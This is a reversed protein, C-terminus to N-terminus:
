NQSQFSSFVYLHGYIYMYKKLQIFILQDESEPNRERNEM